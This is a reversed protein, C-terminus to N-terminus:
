LTSPLPLFMFYRWILSHLNIYLCFVASSINAHSSNLRTSKRDSCSLSRSCRGCRARRRLCCGPCRGGQVAAPLFVTEGDGRALSLFLTTYPHLTSRPPRRIM